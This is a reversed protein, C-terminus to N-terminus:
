EYADGGDIASLGWVFVGTIDVADGPQGGPAVVDNHAGRRRGAALHTELNDRYLYSHGVAAGLSERAARNIIHGIPRRNTLRPLKM